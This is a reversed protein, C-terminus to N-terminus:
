GRSRRGESGECMEERRIVVKGRDVMMRVKKREGEGGGRWRAETGGV